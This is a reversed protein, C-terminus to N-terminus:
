VSRFAENGDIVAHPYLGRTGDNTCSDLGCLCRKTDLEILYLRQRRARLIMGSSRGM